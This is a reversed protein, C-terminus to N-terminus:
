WHLLVMEAAFGPGVALLLGYDGPQPTEEREFHYLLFLVSASSLNGYNRLVKWSLRTQTSSLPLNKELGQLVKPGGPHLLFHTVDKLRLGNEELFPAIQRPLESHLFRPVRSSLFIKLGTDVLDFGM